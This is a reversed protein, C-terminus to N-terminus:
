MEKQSTIKIVEKKTKYGKLFCNMRNRTINIFRYKKLDIQELQNLVKPVFNEIVKIFAYRSSEINILLFSNDSLDHHKTEASHNSIRMEFNDFNKYCSNHKFSLQWDSKEFYDILKQERKDM